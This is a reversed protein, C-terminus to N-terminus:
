KMAAVAAAKVKFYNNSGDSMIRYQPVNGWGAPSDYIEMDEGTDNSVFGQISDQWASIRAHSQEWNFLGGNGCLERLYGKYKNAWTPNQLIKAMLPYSDNGWNMPDQRGADIIGSTGLTNDYDYPIFFVKYKAPDTSNFYLYYNNSNCWYDDWMGVAVNVAYTKLFLEVDMVSAIWENFAAGTKSNLNRIFDQMQAKAANFGEKKNTKLEYTHSSSNDDVGFNSNSDDMLHAPWRCKWLNGDEDGFQKKRARLYNKDIHELMGYVGLYNLGPLGVKICVQAYVDNIATWVGYRRFLDYCYIERVYTPDDKFWKLDVRRVGNVTHDPDKVYKHFDIGYHCHHFYGETDQPRRRSTNGKLRLGAKSVQITKNGKIYEVDCKVFDSTGPNKDYAALLSDWQNQSVIIHIEPIVSSDFVYGLAANWDVNDADDEDETDIEDGPVHVDKAFREFFGLGERCQTLLLPLVLLIAINIFLRKM